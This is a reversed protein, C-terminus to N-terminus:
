RKIRKQLDFYLPAALFTSSYTGTMVGILLAATFWRLTDGGLLLLVVLMFIITLSNNLSRPLTQTIATNALWDLQDGRRTQKQLDRIRDFIVITDHISTSLTTLLATVFLLDVKVDFWLGFWAFAGLLILSDHIMGLVGALGYRWNKFQWWLYLLICLVGLVIAYATKTILDRSVAPGVSHFSVETVPQQLNNMVAQLFAAKTESSIENLQLFANSNDFSLNEIIIAEQADDAQHIASEFASNETPSTITLESGGSFELAPQLGGMIMAVVGSLILILSIAYSIGRWRLWNM